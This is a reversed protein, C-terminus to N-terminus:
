TRKKTSKKTAKKTTGTAIAEEKKRRALMAEFEVMDIPLEVVYQSQQVITPMGIFDILGYELAKESDFYFDNTHRSYAMNMWFDLDKNTQTAFRAMIKDTFAKQAVVSEELQKQNGYAGYSADHFLFVTEPVAWRFTGFATLVCAASCAQGMAITHYAVEGSSVLNIMTSLANLYGGPSNIYLLAETVGSKICGCHFTLFDKCLEDDFEGSIIYRHIEASDTQTIIHESM